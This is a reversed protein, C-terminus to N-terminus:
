PRAQFTYKALEFVRMIRDSCVAVLAPIRRFVELKLRSFSTGSIGSCGRRSCNTAPAAHRPRVKGGQFALADAQYL